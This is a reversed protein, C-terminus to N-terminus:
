LHCFLLIQQFLLIKDSTCAPTLFTYEVLSCIKLKLHRISEMMFKFFFSKQRNISKLLANSITQLAPIQCFSSLYPNFPTHKVIIKLMYFDILDHTNTFSSCDHKKSQLEPTIGPSFRDDINNANNKFSESLKIFLLPMCPTLKVSCLLLFSEM